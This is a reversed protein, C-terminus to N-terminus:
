RSRPASQCARRMLRSLFIRLWMRPRSARPTVTAMVSSSCAAQVWCGAAARVGQGPGAGRVAVPDGWCARLGGADLRWGQGAPTAAAQLVALGCTASARQLACLQLDTRQQPGSGRQPQCPNGQDPVTPLGPDYATYHTPCIWLFDGSPDQVRRLGGFARLRDQEFLTARLTRLAQGQANTLQGTAPGLSPEGGQQKMDSPLDAVLTDMLKLDEKVRALEDPSLVVGTIAGATPVVLQLTRFILMAYPSIKVFWERPPDLEYAAQDWQHWGDPNECWLTLRYHRQHFRLITGVTGRKPVLTFLRPCDIVETSVVRLVRRLSETAEAALAEVRVVGHEIRGLQDHVQKLEATLTQAPVTFGTLLLSLELQEACKPCPISTIDKQRWRQLADLDFEGPCMSGDSANRPCPIFLERTLGPWRDTILQEISDRLVNFYMDPSPARVEVALESPARLELLAESAYTSIHHRLFVGRRWHLGSSDRHHRVTLWPILGPPPESLRCTLALVRIGVPPQTRVRWPLAPREHPVLQAVLSHLQDDALRYSVDFKEMLRLFYPHYRAAYTAGDDRDQWIDRLRVHDLVGAAERTQKDELVYSIAKTLWDPNLVVIDRLGEDEGYYIVQGLDHMLQALTIIESDTVGHRECIEEFENYRIQPESGARALVEERAKVWRPSIMQGMQPLQAAQQRIAERLGPLGDGTRSDVEFSGVLMGPFTEKLHTYDLEPLREASHTAVIMVRANDGVRLRIRRLWGEM